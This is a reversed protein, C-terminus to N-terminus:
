LLNLQDLVVAPDRYDLSLLRPRGGQVLVLSPFSTAGLRRGESIEEQLRAQVVASQLSERFHVQDLGIEEALEVLTETDSPNRAQLYYARQIALVMREGAAPDLARAAIVARCAPWTSRRPRCDRWFAFNFETGPVRQQITRWTQQLYHQMELPMPADSDPALGGLLGRCAVDAPLHRRIAAWV